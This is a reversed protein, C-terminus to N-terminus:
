NLGLIREMMGLINGVREKDLTKQVKVKEKRGNLVYGMMKKREATSFSSFTRRLIPVIEMFHDEKILEIWDDLIQWFSANHILIQASGHLFGELWYAIQMAPVSRSLEFLMRTSTADIDFVNKDFLLRTGIARLKPNINEDASILKLCEIWSELYEQDNLIQIAYNLKVIREYIKDALDIAVNICVVPLGIFIRPLIEKCVQEIQGLDLGRTNGYRLSDILLPIAEMLELIDSELIAKEEIAKLVATLANPLDAKLVNDLVETLEALKKTVGVNSKVFNEAASVVTNGWMSAEIIRIVYEPRWKLKWTESFSGSAFRKGKMSKGWPISLLNLRHILKSGKLGNEKRLDFVKTIAESSNYEKTMRAGSISKELDKQLPVSPIKKPVRGVVDGVILKEEILAYKEEDGHCFTTLGAEKLEEIGAIGKGRLAALNHALKVAEVTNASSAQLDKKRLLRAVKSLWRISADEKKDFLIEYWAPSIVGATYGSSRSLREYTWPIWTYECKVKKLGKLLKKDDAIRFQSLDDLAPVHWAGCVVAVKQHVKLAARIHLRMNAERLFTEKDELRQIEKRLSHMMESIIDFVESSSDVQEFFIDWWAESDDYGAIKAMHLLPDYISIRDFENKPRIQKEEELCFQISHPLDIFSVPIKQKNGFKIAQWEPSFKAFPYFASQAFDKPNYVLIAVPPTLKKNKTFELVAQADEPTEILICDPQYATLAALLHRSSGPGHHRIGFVKHLSM